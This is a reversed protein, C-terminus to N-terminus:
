VYISVTYIVMDLSMNTLTIDNVKWEALHSVTDNSKLKKQSLTLIDQQHGFSFAPPLNIIASTKRGREIATAKM